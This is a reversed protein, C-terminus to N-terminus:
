LLENFNKDFFKTRNIKFQVDPYFLKLVEDPKISPIESSQGVKLIMTITCDNCDCSKMSKKINIFKTIGKKNKKEIFIEDDSSIKNIIYLLDESKLVNKKLTEIKYEAWQASIEIADTGKPMKKINIIESEEPLVKQLIGKLEDPEIDNFIDIDILECISETFIPLAIGLSVKPTPNFGQSFALDLKSRFLAKIVTNQWDLHSLYRLRGTKSLKIRYKIAKSNDKLENNVPSINPSYPKDLVKHTKLNKCVGCNVCNFECPITNEAKLAKKYEEKFWDKNIGSDIVDWPLEAEIDYQKQALEDFDIGLNKAIQTWKAFDINEDWSTLYFGEEQLKQIFKGLTKDGRTLVAEIKSVFSTHYNIKLNKIHKTKTLLHNIKEKIEQESNQGHWQFPTFPKPVFISITCTVRLVDKIQLEDRLLKARYKLKNLLEAMEDIDELTETPLGLIFYLKISSFGEKYCTLITDTIQEESINKNIADRLRQSGAEPALTVTSKRVGQVLHALKASYRDIRQSPLSVSVKRESLTSHLEEIVSEINTYDNSSLSLLSYEDYGTNDISEVVLDIIDEAKRERIPLNTHGSQCFRCMRGCGRRIEIISRDHVCTSFPIPNRTLGTHNKLNSVRKRAKNNLKPSYIGELKTLEIIIEDKKLGKNKLEKYKELLEIILEEGDGIMFIDIFDSMPQPNYACPGGAVIIPCDEGRQVRLVPINALNLMELATPYALEYQLSFALIDFDKLSKQHELSKLSKGTEKLIDRFDFDPAYARDAIFDQHENVISYLIRQGLNSIAIEYKDPFVFAVRTFSKEWDKEYSLYEGGIYQYPKKIRYLKSQDEVALDKKEQSM